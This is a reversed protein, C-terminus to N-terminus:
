WLEQHVREIQFRDVPEPMSKSYGIVVLAMPVISQPAKVLARFGVVRDEM